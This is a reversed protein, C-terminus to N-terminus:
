KTESSVNAGGAGQTKVPNIKANVPNFVRELETMVTKRDKAADDSGTMCPSAMRVVAKFLDDKVAVQTGRIEYGKETSLEQLTKLDDASVCGKRGDDPKIVNSFANLTMSMENMLLQRRISVTEKARRRIQDAVDEGDLTLDLREVWDQATPVKEGSASAVCKTEQAGGDNKAPRAFLLPCSTAGDARLNGALLTMRHEPNDIWPREGSDMLGVAIGRLWEASYLFDERGPVVARYGARMLFVAVNDCHPHKAIRRDDKYLVVPPLRREYPEQGIEAVPQGCDEETGEM